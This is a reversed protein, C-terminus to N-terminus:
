PCLHKGGGFPIYAAKRQREEAPTAGPGFAGPVFRDARFEDADDGWTPRDRHVAKVSWMTFAGKKLLYERGDHDTLVTDQLVYRNGIGQNALRISERYCSVLLPCAEELRTIDLAARRTYKNGDGGDASANTPDTTIDVLPAVEKRLQEVLEPRLWVHVFLWFLTPITNTTSVFLLACELRGVDDNKIGAERSFNARVKTIAAVDDADDCRAGYFKILREQVVERSVHATRALVTPWFGLFLPQINGDFQWLHHALEPQDRLPNQHGYLGEATAMTMLERLWDYVNEVRLTGSGLENLKDAVHDLARVNMRFLNQGMMAPKIAAM